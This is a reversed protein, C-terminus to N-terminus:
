MLCPHSTSPVSLMVTHKAVSRRAEAILSWRGNNVLVYTSVSRRDLKSLQDVHVTRYLFEAATEIANKELRMVAALTYRDILGYVKRRLDLTNFFDQAAKGGTEISRDSFQKLAAFGSAPGGKINGSAKSASAANKPSPAM